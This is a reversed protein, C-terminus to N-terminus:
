STSHHTPTNHQATHRQPMSSDHPTSKQSHSFLLVFWFILPGSDVNPMPGIDDLYEKDDHDVVFDCDSLYSATSPPKQSGLRHGFVAIQRDVDSDGMDDQRSSYHPWTYVPSPPVEVQVSPFLLRRAMCRLAFIDGDHDSTTTTSTPHTVTTGTATAKGKLVPCIRAMRPRVLPSREIRPQRPKIRGVCFIVHSVQTFVLM